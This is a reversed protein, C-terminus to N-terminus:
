QRNSGQYGRGSSAEGNGTRRHRKRYDPADLSRLLGTTPDRMRSAIPGTAEGVKTRTTIVTPLTLNHRHVVIQYLKEDVWSTSSEAGLDDLILVPVTKIQELLEDYTVPSNPNFTTRLHDLLDPVFAFLVPDGRQGLEGAIAVALHTKGSGAPGSFLIWGKPYSAFMVAGRCADALYGQQERTAGIGGRQDFHAFTM